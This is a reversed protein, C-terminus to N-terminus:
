LYTRMAIAHQRQGSRSPTHFPRKEGGICLANELTMLIVDRNISTILILALVLIGGQEGVADDDNGNCRQSYLDRRVQEAALRRIKASPARQQADYVFSADQLDRKRPTSGGCGV